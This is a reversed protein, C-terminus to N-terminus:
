GCYQGKEFDRHISFNVRYEGNRKQLLRIQGDFAGNAYFPNPFQGYIYAGARINAVNRWSGFAKTMFDIGAYMGLSGAFRWQNIGTCNPYQLYSLNAEAGASLEYRCPFLAKFEGYDNFKIGLGMAVGRGKYAYSLNSLPRASLSSSPFVSRYGDIFPQTFNGPMPIDNGFMFYEYLNGVNMVRVRNLHQPTGFIFKWKKERGRIDVTLTQDEAIVVNPKNINVLASLNFHRAPFDYFVDASGKIKSKARSSTNMKAGVWFDTDLMMMSVGNSSSFEATLDADFNYTEEKLPNACKIGATFSKKGPSPVFTYDVVGNNIEKQMTMNRAFGGAFGRLRVGPLIDIGSQQPLILDAKARFYKYQGGYHYDTSGFEVLGSTSIELCKFDVNINGSFGQGYILDQNRLKLLGDVYVSSFSGNVYIDDVTIKHFTPKLCKFRPHDVTGYLGLKSRASISSIRDKGPLLNFLVDLKVGGRFLETGQKPEQVMEQEIISFKFEAAKKQPSAFSWLGYDANVSDKKVRNDRDKKVKRDFSIGQFALSMNVPVDTGNGRPLLLDSFDLEGHLDMRTLQEKDGTIQNKDVRYEFISNQALTMEPGGLITAQIKDKPTVTFIFNTATDLTTTGFIAKYDVANSISDNTVPLQLKGRIMSELRTNEYFVMRFTDMSISLDSLNGKPYQIINQVDFVGSFLGSRIIMNKGVFSPKQDPDAFTRFEDPTTVRAERIFVGMFVHDEDIPDILPHQPYAFKPPDDSISHDFYVDTAALEMGNSGPIIADDLSIGAIWDDWNCIQTQINSTVNQKTSDKPLLAKRPFVVSIDSELCFEGECNTWRIHNGQHGNGSKHFIMWYDDGDDHNSLQLAQENLLEVKGSPGFRPGSLTFQQDSKQFALSGSAFAKIPFNIATNFFAGNPTWKMETLAASYKKQDKNYWGIPLTLAKSQDQAIKNLDVDSLQKQSKVLRAAQGIRRSRHLWANLSWVMGKTWSLGNNIAYEKPFTPADPNLISVIEGECVFNEANVKINSFSVKIDSNLWPVRIMGNGSLGAAGGKPKETLVMTFGGCLAIESGEAFTEGSLADCGTSCDEVNCEEVLSNYRYCKRKTCEEGTNDSVITVELCYEVN